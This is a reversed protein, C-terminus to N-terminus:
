VHNSSTIEPAAAVPANVDLKRSQGLATFREARRLDEVANVNLFWWSTPLQAPHAVQGAQVLTEVPVVTV